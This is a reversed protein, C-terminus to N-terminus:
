SKDHLTLREESVDGLLLAYRVTTTSSELAIKLAMTLPVSLLMGVTGLIWGWFLLSLFVVLTSLGLKRGMMKPELVNGIVMNILIIGIAVGFGISFGNLLLAQVIIPVGALISGINPIYNLLFSLTAWLVAYQVDLLVLMVWICAATLLSVITKVGLYSIVGELVRNINNEKLETDENGSLAVALRHKATPAEFLMFVVVLLLVFIDTVVGSFSLLLRSVFNMIRSPDLENMISDESIDIPINWQKAFDLLLSIRESLLIKYSPISATFEKITSNILGSLFTFGIAFLVFLLAIALWLPIKRDTMSKVIPSCIIAIFLSLLFPIVIETAMKIGALIIVIAAITLLIRFTSSSTQM